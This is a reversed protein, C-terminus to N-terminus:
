RDERLAEIPDLKSASFAPYIGFIIGIGGSVGVSLIVYSLSITMTMPTVMEIIWAVLAALGLGIM